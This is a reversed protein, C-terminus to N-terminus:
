GRDALSKTVRYRRWPHNPGPKRSFKTKQQNDTTTLELRCQPDTPMTWPCEETFRGNASRVRMVEPTQAAPETRAIRQGQYYVHLSGDFREQLEVAKGAYGKGGPGRGIQISRGFFLVTNDNAVVRRYKFCFLGDLDTSKDIPQYVSNPDTPKRAFRRNHDAVVPRLM